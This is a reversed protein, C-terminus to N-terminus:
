RKLSFHGRKEPTNADLKFVFWYDSAPLPQGNFTGDWGISNPRLEKLLKGYRDFIRLEATPYSIMGKVTWYDNYGDNNPTFFPPALLVVFDGNDIGCGNVDRIFATQLGGPANVFVNSNQYNFGDISYEFYSHGNKPVIEVNTEVVNISKIEPIEHEIVTIKKTSTCPFSNTIEVNYIGSNTVDITKTNESTTWLYTMGFLSADLTVFSSQCLIVTEDTVVPLPNIIASIAIRNANICGNNNAEAYFITDTLLTPTTFISGTHISTGGVAEYFWNVNGISQSAELDITGTGCRKVIPKNTSIIPTTHITATVITRTNPCGSVEAYYNKTSTLNPNIFNDGTDIFSGGLDVDYWEITGISATAKLTISGSDCRTTTTTSTIKAITLTTSASIQITNTDGPELGGYEVIYGLPYYDSAPDTDGTNSLDNWTGKYIGGDMQPNTIHAYNESGIPLGFDNPEGKNTNWNTYIMNTGAEPGTVWKWVGETESDSGGIWGAGSAQKGALQAEDASTLTALYGHLGYYYNSPSEAEDKAVTWRIGPKSIYRYFHKNSPLYNAQGITISFTRTGSSLPSDNRFQIDKLAAEYNNLTTTADVSYIRIRGTNPDFLDVKIKPHSGPNALKLQDLGSVYNTSIQIFIENIQNDPDLLNVNEIINLDTQPCYSLNINGEIKISPAITVLTKKAPPDINKPIAFGLHIGFVIFLALFPIKFSNKM